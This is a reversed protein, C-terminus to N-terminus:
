NAEVAQFWGFGKNEGHGLTIGNGQIDELLESALSLDQKDIQRGPRGFIAVTVEMTTGIFARTTFLANEIPAGSFRDLKVSTIDFPEAEVIKLNRIELLARFGTVGFLREVSTLDAIDDVSHVLKDPRDVADVIDGRRLAHRAALWAARSRLAGSLSSGLLLPLRDRALQAVVQPDSTERNPRHSSDVVLFPGPCALRLTWTRAAELAPEAVQELSIDFGNAPEFDGKPGLSLPSVKFTDRQLRVRGSGDAQGSGIAVGDAGAVPALVNLLAALNARGRTALDQENAVRRLDLLLSLRFQSGPAVMEEFFLMNDRATGCDRDIRTRAAVFVGPGLGGEAVATTSQRSYPMASADGPKELTAGRVLVAGMRGDGEADKISGFLGDVEGSSLVREGIRRLMGKITSGPLYPRELHDRVIAAVAPAENSGEKGTVSDVARFAGTGVHLPSLTEIVATIDFRLRNM